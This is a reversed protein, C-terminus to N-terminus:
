PIEQARLTAKHRDSLSLASIITSAFANGNQAQLKVSHTGPSVPAEALISGGEAEDPALVGTLM